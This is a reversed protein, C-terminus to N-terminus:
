RARNAKALGSVNEMLRTILAARVAFLLALWHPMGKAPQIGVTFANLTELGTRARLYIVLQRNAKVGVLM